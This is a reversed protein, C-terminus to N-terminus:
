GHALIYGVTDEVTKLGLADDDPIRVEFQEEVMLLVEVLTLSDIDLEDGFSKEPRVDEVPVGAVEHLIKTLGALVEDYKPRM